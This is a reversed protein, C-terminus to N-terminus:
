MFYINLTIPCHDSVRVKDVTVKGKINDSVLFYDLRWGNGMDYANNSYSYFTYGPDRTSDRFIDRLKCETLTKDFSEREWPMFGPSNTLKPNYIDIPHHACNLDGCLIINGKLQKIYSRLVNDWKIRMNVKGTSNPVYVSVLVFDQYHCAVMRGCSGIEVKLPKDKTMILVGAYGKRNGIDWYHNYGELLFRRKSVTDGSFM